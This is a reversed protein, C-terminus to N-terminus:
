LQVLLEQEQLGLILWLEARIEAGASLVLEVSFGLSGFTVSFYRFGRQEKTPAM